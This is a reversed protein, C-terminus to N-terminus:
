ISHRRSLCPSCNLNSHWIIKNQTNCALEALAHAISAKDEDNCEISGLLEILYNPFGIKGMDARKTKSEQAIQTIYRVSKIKDDKSGTKLIDLISRLDEQIYCCHGSCIATRHLYFEDYNEEFFPGSLCYYSTSVACKSTQKEAFDASPSLCTDVPEVVGNYLVSTITYALSSIWDRDKSGTASVLADVKSLYDLKKGKGVIM